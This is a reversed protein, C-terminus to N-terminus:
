DRGDLSDVYANLLAGNFTCTVAFNLIPSPVIVTLDQLM